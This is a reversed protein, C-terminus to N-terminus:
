LEWQTNRSSSFSLKEPFTHGILWLDSIWSLVVFTVCDQLTKHHPWRGLGLEIRDAKQRFCNLFRLFTHVMPLRVSPNISLLLMSCLFVRQQRSWCVHLSHFLRSQSVACTCTYPEAGTSRKFIAIETLCAWMWASLVSVHIELNTLNKAVPIM